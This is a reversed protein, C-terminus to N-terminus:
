LFQAIPKRATSQTYFPLATVQSNIKKRETAVTLISGAHSHEKRVYAIAIARQLSPSFSGSTVTGVQEHEGLFVADGHRASSRGDLLLGVMKEELADPSTVRDSGIFTKTTSINRSYGTQAPNRQADLEHGYLPLGMELRLTDRAGLGAPVAGLQICDNWLSLALDHPCFVEFGMEGTYGTRSLMVRTDKYYCYKFYFYKLDLLSDNLLKNVLGPSKPGQIDIKATYESVNTARTTAPSINASIWEFDSKQTGANVVLLYKNEAIRYVILDDITGGQPNCLFAYRCQGIALDGVSCSLLKELDSCATKGSIRFEGMHCTDFITVATRTALHEKIIGEYQIPMEYGGFAVMRAGLARHAYYLVTKKGTITESM